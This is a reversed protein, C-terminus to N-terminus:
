RRKACEGNVGTHSIYAKETYEGQEETLGNICSLMRRKSGDAFRRITRFTVSDMAEFIRNELEPFSYKCNERTYKKLTGQYYETFSLECHFKPYFIAEHGAELFVTEM